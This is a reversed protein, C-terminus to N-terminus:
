RVRRRGQFGQASCGRRGRDAAVFADHEVMGQVSECRVTDNMRPDAALQALLSAKRVTHADMRVGGDKATDFVIQKDGGDAPDM